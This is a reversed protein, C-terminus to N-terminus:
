AGGKSSTDSEPRIKRYLWSLGGFFFALILYLIVALAISASMIWSSIQEYETQAWQAGLVRALTVGLAITLLAGVSWRVTPTIGWGGLQLLRNLLNLVAVALGGLAVCVIALLLGFLVILLTLM